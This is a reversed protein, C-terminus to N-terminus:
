EVRNHDAGFLGKGSEFLGAYSLGRLHRVNTSVLGSVFTGHTGQHSQLSQNQENRGERPHFQSGYGAPSEDEGTRDSFDCGRSVPDRQYAFIQGGDLHFQHLYHSRIRGAGKQEFLTLFL